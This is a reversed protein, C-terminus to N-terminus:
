LRIEVEGAATVVGSRIQNSETNKIRIIDGVRGQGLAEASRLVVRVSGSVATVRVPDRSRIVIPLKVMAPEVLDRLTLITGATRPTRVTRGIIQNDRPSDMETALFRSEFQVDTETIVHDRTLSVRAVAVDFRRLVQVRASRTSLLTRGDWLRVTLSLQGISGRSPPVVEARIGPVSRINSPLGQTFPAILRVQLDQDHINLSQSIAATASDEVDTDDIIRPAVFRVTVTPAGLVEIDKLPIGLQATRIRLYSANVIGPQLEDDIDAVVLNSIAAAQRSSATNIRCVDGLRVDRSNVTASERVVLQVQDAGSPTVLLGVFALVSTLAVIQPSTQRKLESKM